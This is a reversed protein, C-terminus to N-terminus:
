TTTLNGRKAAELLEGAGVGGQAGLHLRDALRHADAAGEGLREHLGHAGALEALSRSVMPWASSPAPRAHVRPELGLEVADGARQCPDLAHVVEDGVVPQSELAQPDRVRVHCLPAAHRLCDDACLPPGPAHLRDAAPDVGARALDFRGRVVEVGGPALRFLADGLLSLGRTTIRPEPRVADALPDLEVVAADVRRLREAREAVLGHHDVAVGLRDRRVVVRGVPQKSGSPTSSTSAIQSCSSGSPTTM